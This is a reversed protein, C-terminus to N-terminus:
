AMVLRQTKLNQMTLRQVSVTSLLYTQLIQIKSSLKVKPREVLVVQLLLTVVTIQQLVSAVM